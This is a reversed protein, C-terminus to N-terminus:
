DSTAGPGAQALPVRTTSAMVPRPREGAAPEDRTWPRRAARRTRLSTTARFRLSWAAPVGEVDIEALSRFHARSYARVPPQTARHSGPGGVVELQALHASQRMWGFWNTMHPTADFRGFLFARRSESAHNMAASEPIRASPNPGSGAASAPHRQGGLRSVEGAGFGIGTRPSSPGLGTSRRPRAVARAQIAGVPPPPAEAADAASAVTRADDIGRKTSVHAGRNRSNAPRQIRSTM